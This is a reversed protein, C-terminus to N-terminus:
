AISSTIKKVCGGENNVIVCPQKTAPITIEGHQNRFSFGSCATLSMTIILMLLYKALIM